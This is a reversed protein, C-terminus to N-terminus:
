CCGRSHYEPDRWGGVGGGGGWHRAQMTIYMAGIM